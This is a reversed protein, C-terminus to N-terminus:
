IVVKTKEKSSPCDISGVGICICTSTETNALAEINYLTVGNVKLVSKKQVQYVVLLLSLLALYKFHKKM